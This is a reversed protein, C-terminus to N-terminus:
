RTRPYACLPLSPYMQLSHHTCKIHAGHSRIYKSRPQLTEAAVAARAVAVLAMEAAVPAMRLAVTEAAGLDRLASLAEGHALGGLRRGGAELLQTGPQM